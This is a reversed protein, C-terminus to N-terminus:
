HAESCSRDISFMLKGNCRVPLVPMYLEKPPLIKYKILGEYNEISDFHETIIKPHGLPIKGTKNIFPYLSTVDYYKIQNEPCAEEYLKFAETRGGYFADRPVLPTVFELKDIYNKMAANSELEKKFECEWICVYAYGESEIYQKIEMTQAYLESMPLQVVPNITTKAFSTLCGHWFCGHFDRVTRETESEYYGDVKYPGIYKEGVNRGHQIRLNKAHALYHLWQYAMVSQKDSPRYGQPPIIGITDNELFNKRFVLNCASAITICKEFPDIGGISEKKTMEMFLSRFRLCCKRLIDVDSKCYRLLEKQFDFHCMKNQEYWQLFKTRTEPKMGNPNYFSMDPLHNLVSAQNEKRNYLHPFFGKALETEGFAKPMDALAMPIFNLSDIFRIKCAPVKVSM